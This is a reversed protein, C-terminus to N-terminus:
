NQIRRFLEREAEDYREFRQRLEALIREVEEPDAAPDALAGELAISADQLSSAGEAFRRAADYLNLNERQEGDPQYLLRWPSRRIEASALEFTRATSGLREVITNIRGRNGAVLGRATATTERLDKAVGVVDEAATDVTDLMNSLRAGTDEITLQVDEVASTAAQVLGASDEALQPLRDSAARLNAITGKLDGKGQDSGFIDDLNGVFSEAAGAAGALNDAVANYRGVAPSIEGRIERAAAELEAATRDLNALIENTLPLTDSRIDTILGEVQPGVSSVTQVLDSFTGAQGVIPNDDTPEAGSGLDTFTLWVQGTLTSQVRVTADQKVPLDDPLLVTVLLQDYTDTFEISRVEGVPKGGVRVESGTQLGSIDDRIDFIVTQRQGGTIRKGTVFWLVTMALVVSLLIFLGAKFANKDTVGAM